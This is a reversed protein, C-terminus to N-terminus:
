NQRVEALVRCGRVEVRRRRFRAPVAGGDTVSVLTGLTERRYRQGPLRRRPSVDTGVRALDHFLHLFNATIVIFDAMGGINGTHIGMRVRISRATLVEQAGRAAEVAKPASPFAVFFADGQTDM